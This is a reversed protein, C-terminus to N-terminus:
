VRKKWFKSTIDKIGYTLVGCIEESEWKLMRQNTTPEKLGGLSEIYPGVKYYDFQGLLQVPMKEAGTYLCTKLNNNHVIECYECIEDVAWDGGMFCVCTIHDKYQALVDEFDDKLYRGSYEWLHPSHCGRCKYPCGSINFILSIEDPVEQFAVTYGQYKLKEM